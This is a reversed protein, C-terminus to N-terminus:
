ARVGSAISRFAAPLYRVLDGAILSVEGLEAAALDGSLGHLYVGLVAANFPSLGQCVLATIVGTLVDGSGGTAMGPNGTTNRYSRGGDTVLTRHGKLVIVVGHVGALEVARAAMEEASLKAGGTLRRFEGLHPTLIRPGGPDALVSGRGALANLGDADVVMPRDLSAYMRGVLEVLEDSRGIGPGLAVCDAAAAREEITGCAAAAIRGEADSALPVTMYSPQYSAVTDLCVDPTALTVLGAGSRLTAMGALSIAGTMGRSGGILLARGFDGKHSEPRRKPLRPLETVDM